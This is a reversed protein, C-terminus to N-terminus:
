SWVNGSSRRSRDYLWKNNLGVSIRKGGTPSPTPPPESFISSATSLNFSSTSANFPSPSGYSTQRGGSYGVAKQLLPSAAPSYPSGNPRTASAPSGNASLPSSTPSPKGLSGNISPTRAYRPPTSYVSNPTPPASSPALGLLKRQAPTLAIDSLDDKSRLIPLCAIGINALPLMQAALTVWHLYQKVDSSLQTPAHEAAVLRLVYIIFFAAINYIITKVNDSGFVTAQQRRTIEKIRPHQWNGPSDTVPAPSAKSPTALASNRRTKNLSLATTSSM